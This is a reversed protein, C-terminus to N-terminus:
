VIVAMVVGYVSMDVKIIIVTLFCEGRNLSM